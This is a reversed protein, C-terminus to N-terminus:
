PHSRDALPHGTRASHLANRIATTVLDPSAEHLYHASQEAITHRSNASLGALDRHLDRWVTWWGSGGPDADGSGRTLVIM